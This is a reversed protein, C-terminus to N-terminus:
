LLLQPVQTHQRVRSSITQSSCTGLVGKSGCTNSIIEGGCRCLNQVKDHLPVIRLVHRFGHHRAVRLFNTLRAAYVGHEDDNPAIGVAVIEELKGVAHEVAQLAGNQSCVDQALKRLRAHVQLADCDVVRAVQVEEEGLLVLIRRVRQFEEVAPM